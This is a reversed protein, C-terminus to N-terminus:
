IRRLNSLSAALIVSSGGSVRFELNQFVSVTNFLKISSWIGARLNSGERFFDGRNNVSPFFPANGNAYLYKLYARELPKVSTAPGAGEAENKFRESLRKIISGAQYDGEGTAEYEREAENALRAAERRSFPKTSFIGSRVLGKVELREFDQYATDDLPIEISAAYVNATLCLLFFGAAFILSFFRM